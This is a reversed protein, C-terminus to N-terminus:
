PMTRHTVIVSILSFINIFPKIRLTEMVIGPVADVGVVSGIAFSPSGPVFVLDGITIKTQHPISATFTGAGTGKLTIPNNAMGVWAITKIGPSSFLLVRASLSSVDKITGIPIGGSATVVDGVVSGSETGADIVLTDYPSQTPRALVSAVVGYASPTTTGILKTLTDVRTSLARNRNILAENQLILKNNKNHLSQSHSISIFISSTHEYTFSGASFFPTMVTLFANPAVFRFLAFLVVIALVISGGSFINPTLFVSHKHSFRKKM